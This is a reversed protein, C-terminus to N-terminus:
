QVKRPRGPGRKVPQAAPEDAVTGCDDRATGEANAVVETPFMPLGYPNPQVADCSFCAMVRVVQGAPAAAGAVMALKIAVYRNYFWRASGCNVCVVEM